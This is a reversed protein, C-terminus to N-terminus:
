WIGAGTTSTPVTAFATHTTVAADATSSAGCMHLISLVLKRRCQRHMRHRCQMVVCRGLVVIRILVRRPFVPEFDLVPIGGWMAWVNADRTRGGGRQVAEHRTLPRLCEVGRESGEGGAHMDDWWAQMCGWLLGWGRWTACVREGHCVARRERKRGWVGAAAVAAITADTAAIAPAIVNTTFAYSHFQAVGEFRRM